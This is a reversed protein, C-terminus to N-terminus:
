RLRLTDTLRSAFQSVVAPFPNKPMTFTGDTRVSKLRERCSM